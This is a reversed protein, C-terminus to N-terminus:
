GGGLMQEIVVIEEVEPGIESLVQGTRADTVFGGMASNYTDELIKRAEELSVEKIEDKGIFRVKINKAM